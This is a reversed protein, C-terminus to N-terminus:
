RLKLNNRMTISVVILKVGILILILMIVFDSSMMNFAMMLGFGLLLVGLFFLSIGLKHFAM